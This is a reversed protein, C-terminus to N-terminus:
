MPMLLLGAELEVVVPLEMVLLSSLLFSWLQLTIQRYGNTGNIGPYPPPADTMYVTNAPPQLVHTDHIMFFTKWFKVSNLIMRLFSALNVILWYLPNIRVMDPFVHTPPVWGGYGAPNASYAPPPAAYRFTGRGDQALYQSVNFPACAPDHSLYSVYPM